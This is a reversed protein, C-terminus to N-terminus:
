LYGRLAEIEEAFYIFAAVPMASAAVFTMRRGWTSVYFDRWTPFILSALVAAVNAFALFRVTLQLLVV